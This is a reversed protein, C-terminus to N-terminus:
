FYIYYEVEYKDGSAVPVPDFTVRSFLKENLEDNGTPITDEKTLLLGLEEALFGQQADTNDITAKIVVYMETGTEGFSFSAGTLPVFLPTGVVKNMNFTSASGNNGFVVHRISFNNFMKTYSNEGAVVTDTGQILLDLSKIFLEKIFKRGNEVIMNDKKFIITGDERKFIVHGRVSGSDTVNIRDNIKM